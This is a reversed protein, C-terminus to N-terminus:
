RGPTELLPATAPGPGSVPPVIFGPPNEDEIVEAPEKPADPCGPSEGKGVVMVRPETGASGAIANAVPGKNVDIGIDLADM